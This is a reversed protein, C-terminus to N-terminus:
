DWSEAQVRVGKSNLFGMRFQLENSVEEKYQDQWDGKLKRYFTSRPTNLLRQWTKPTKAVSWMREAEAKVEALRQCALSEVISMFAAASAIESDTMDGINYIPMQRLSHPVYKRIYSELDKLTERLSVFECYAQTAGAADSETGFRVAGSLSQLLLKETALRREAETVLRTHSRVVIKGQTITSEYIAEGTTRVIKPVDRYISSRYLRDSNKRYIALAERAMKWDRESSFTKALSLLREVETQKSHRGRRFPSFGLKMCAERASCEVDRMRRICQQTNLTDVPISSAFDVDLSLHKKTLRSLLSLERFLVSVGYAARLRQRRAIRWEGDFSDEIRSLEESSIEESKFRVLTSALRPNNASLGQSCSNFLRECARIERWWYDDQWKWAISAVSALENFEM